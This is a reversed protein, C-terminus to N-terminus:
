DVSTNSKQDALQTMLLYVIGIDAKGYGVALEVEGNRVAALSLGPIRMCELFENVFDEIRAEEEENLIANASPALLLFCVLALLLSSM